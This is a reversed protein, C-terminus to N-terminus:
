RALGHLLGPPKNATMFFLITSIPLGILFGWALGWEVVKPGRRWAKVHRGLGLEAGIRGAEAGARVRRSAHGTVGGGGTLSRATGVVALSGCSSVPKACGAIEAETCFERVDPDATVNRVFTAGQSGGRCHCAGNLTAAGPDAPLQSEKILYERPRFPLWM